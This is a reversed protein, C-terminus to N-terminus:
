WFSQWNISPQLIIALLSRAYFFFHCTFIIVKDAELQNFVYEVVVDDEMGGLLETIKTAMWPKITDLKVKNMDVKHFFFVNFGRAAVILRM